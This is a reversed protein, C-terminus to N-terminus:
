PELDEIPLGLEKACDYYAQAIPRPVATETVKCDKFTSGTKQTGGGLFGSYYKYKFTLEQTNFDFDAKLGKSSFFGYKRLRLKNPETSRNMGGDIVMSGMDLVWKGSPREVLTVTSNGEMTGQKFTVMGKCVITRYSSGHSPLAFVLVFFLLVYKM